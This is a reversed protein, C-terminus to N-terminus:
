VKNGFGLGLLSTAGARQLSATRRRVGGGRRRPEHPPARARPPRLGAGGHEVGDGVLPEEGV